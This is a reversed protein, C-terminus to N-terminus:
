DYDTDCYDCHHNKLPAGCRSCIQPLAVRPKATLVSCDSWEAQDSLIYIANNNKVTIDCYKNTTMKHYIM